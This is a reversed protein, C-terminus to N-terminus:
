RRPARALLLPQYFGSEAPMRWAVDAFGAQRALATLEERLVARYVTVFHRSDWGTATQRTLYLHATYQRDGTWDWLQHYIRRYAGDQFLAPPPMAPRDPLLQDYDRITALFLGGPRLKGAIRELARSLDHDHLLHPLANDAAIVADFDSEAVTSLERMDAAVFQIALGRERAERRARAIAAGSLDAGTVTHGRGALGLAQTGIGCACDLIRLPGAPAEREILPGLVGAQWEISRNWDQFILHFCDALDDYFARTADSM